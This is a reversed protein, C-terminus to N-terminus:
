PQGSAVRLAKAKADALVLDSETRPIRDDHQM